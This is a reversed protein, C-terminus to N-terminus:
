AQEQLQGLFFLEEAMRAARQVEADSKGEIRLIKAPDITMSSGHPDEWEPLDHTLDRIEFPGLAGYAEHVGALVEMEYESLEGTSFQANALSVENNARETIYEYWPDGETRGWKVSDYIQSLVPGHPMSVMRDGTITCGTAVLVERDALYLLKLLVMMNLSGGHLQVTYAAAQAAKRRNFPLRM